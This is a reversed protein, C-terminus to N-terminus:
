VAASLHTVVHADTSHHHQAIMPRESATASCASFTMSIATKM